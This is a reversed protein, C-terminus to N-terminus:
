DVWRGDIGMKGVYKPKDTRFYDPAFFDYYENCLSPMEDKIAEVDRGYDWWSDSQAPLFFTFRLQINLQAATCQGAGRSIARALAKVQSSENATPCIELFARRANLTDSFKLKKISFYQSIASSCESPRTSSALCLLATCSVSESGSLERAQGAGVMGAMLLAAGFTKALIM